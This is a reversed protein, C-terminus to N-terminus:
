HLTSIAHTAFPASVTQHKEIHIPEHVMCLCCCTNCIRRERFVQAIHTLLPLSFQQFHAPSLDGAWSEFVQLLSAGAKVQGVLYDISLDAIRYLLVLSEEPYQYLWAQPLRTLRSLVRTHLVVCFVLCFMKSKLYPLLNRTSAM